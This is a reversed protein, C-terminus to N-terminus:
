KMRNKYDQYKREEQRCREREKESVPINGYKLDNHARLADEKIARIRAEKEATTPPRKPPMKATGTEVMGHERYHQRLRRKSTFVKGEATALSETPPIDDNIVFPADPEKKLPAAEEIPVCKGNRMVFIGRVPTKPAKPAM